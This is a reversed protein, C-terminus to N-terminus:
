DFQEFPEFQVRRDFNTLALIERIETSSNMVSVQVGKNLITTLVGLFGSPVTSVGAMDFAFERCDHEVILHTIQEMYRSLVHEPPLDGGAFGVVTRRGTERVQLRSARDDRVEHFLKSDASSDIKGPPRARQRAGLADQRTSYIPWLSNLKSKTLIEQAIQSVNCLAMTGSRERVQKWVVCLTDLLLSGFYEVQSFDIVVTPANQNRIADVLAGRKEALNADHLGSIRPGPMIVIADGVQEVVFDNSPSM